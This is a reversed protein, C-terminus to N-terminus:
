QAERIIPLTDLVYSHGSQTPLLLQHVDGAEFYRDGPRQLYQNSENPANQTLVSAISRVPYDEFRAESLLPWSFAAVTALAVVTRVNLESMVDAKPRSFGVNRGTPDHNVQRLRM